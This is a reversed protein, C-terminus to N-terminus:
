LEEVETSVGLEAFLREWYASVAPNNVHTSATPEFPKAVFVQVSTLNNLNAKLNSADERAWGVAAADDVPPNKHFDRRHEGKMSEVMDSLYYVKVDYGRAVEKDILELSALIDTNENSSSANRANLQKVVLQKFISKERSLDLSFETKLAESDNANAGDTEDMETRSIVEAVKAKATNEHIFYVILKDGKGRINKEVLDNIIKTYKENAFGKDVNVSVSKDIFIMSCIKTKPLTNEQKKDQGSCAWLLIGVMLCLSFGTLKSSVNFGLFKM